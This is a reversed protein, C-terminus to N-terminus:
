KCNVWEERLRDYKADLAERAKCTDFHQGDCHVMVEAVYRSELELLARDSCEPREPQGSAAACGFLWVAVAAVTALGLWDLAESLTPRMDDERSIPM